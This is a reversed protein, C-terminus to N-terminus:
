WPSLFIKVTDGFQRNWSDYVFVCRGVVAHVITFLIVFGVGNALCVIRVDLGPNFIVCM